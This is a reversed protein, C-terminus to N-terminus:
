SFEEPDIMKDFTGQVKTIVRALEKQPNKRFAENEKEIKEANRNEKDVWHLELYPTPRLIFDADPKFAKVLLMSGDKYAPHTKVFHSQTFKEKAEKANEATILFGHSWEAGTECANYVLAYKDKLAEEMYKREDLTGVKEPEKFAVLGVKVAENLVRNIQITGIHIDMRYMEDCLNLYIENVKDEIYYHASTRNM